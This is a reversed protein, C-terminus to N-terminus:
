SRLETSEKVEKGMGTYVFPIVSFLPFTELIKKKKKWISELESSSSYSIYKLAWICNKLM